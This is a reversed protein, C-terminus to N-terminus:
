SNERFSYFRYRQIRIKKEKRVPSAIIRQMFSDVIDNRMVMSKAVENSFNKGPTEQYYEKKLLSDQGHLEKYFPIYPQLGAEHLLLQEIKIKSKNTKRWKPLYTSVTKNLKIKGEDYLKMVALTTSLIKTLSALDYVAASSIPEAKEYTQFGYAKDLLIKGDKLVLLSGGPM